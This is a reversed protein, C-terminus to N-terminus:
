LAVYNGLVQKWQDQLHQDLNHNPSPLVKINPGFSRIWPLMEMPDAIDFTLLWQDGTESVKAARQVGNTAQAKLLPSLGDKNIVVQVQIKKRTSGSVLWSQSLVDELIPLPADNPSSPCAEFRGHIKLSDLRIAPLLVCGKRHCACGFVYWRGNFSDFVFRLPLLSLERYKGHREQLLKVPRNETRAELLQWLLGEDLAAYLPMYRAIIPLDYVEPLGREWRLYEKITKSLFYGPVSPFATNAMFQVGSLLELLEETNLNLYQDSFYDPALKYVTQRGSSHREWLGCEVLDNACLRITNGSVVEEGDKTGDTLLAWIQEQLEQLSLTEYAAMTQQLLIQLTIERTTTTHSHYLKWLYNSRRTFPRLKYRIARSKGRSVPQLVQGNYTRLRRLAEDYRRPQIYRSKLDDRTHCGYVMFERAVDRVTDMSTLFRSWSSM